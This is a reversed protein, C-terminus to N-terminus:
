NFKWKGKITPEDLFQELQQLFLARPILRAGFSLLHESEIQCDIIGFSNKELYEVLKVFAVKSANSKRTFMSEGFFCKGMSM